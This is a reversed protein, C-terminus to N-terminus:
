KVLRIGTFQWRSEPQFFNRYTQRSHGPPTAESAGRLVQQGVMFKGNYEGLAGAAKAFGPYPLYASETWEWRQGWDFGDSAVEWEAETPLRMGKWQAYAWAEYYGVHCVPATLDVPELGSFSYNMWEGDIKHWYLPATIQEGNVWDWGAAHWYTFKRYGGDDIFEIYEENTVLTTCIDYRNLYVKHRNLENDFCFGDGTFGIEYVGGPIGALKGTGEQKRGGIGAVYPPFLPNHGFIYKIDTILLEQHQQEHNLGITILALIEGSFECDMLAIMNSNIHARYRYIDAVAPRSLNGRDTRIIRAGLSEYYSNFVFDYRDDFLQYGPVHPKLIMAEFFWATHGLHWKPPSVEAAPQVVYDEPLLPSCINETLSRVSLFKEKLSEKMYRWKIRDVSSWFGALKYASSINIILIFSYFKKEDIKTFKRLLAVVARSIFDEFKQRFVKSKKFPLPILVPTSDKGLRNILLNL